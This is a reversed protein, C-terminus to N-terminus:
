LKRATQDDGEMALDLVTDNVCGYIWSRVCADPQSLTPDTPRAPVISDVHGLLGFKACMATFFAKWKSYNPHELSLNFPVHQRVSVSANPNVFIPAANADTLAAYSPTGSAASTALSSSGTTAM